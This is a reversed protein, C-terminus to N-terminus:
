KLQNIVYLALTDIVISWFLTHIIEDVNRICQIIIM